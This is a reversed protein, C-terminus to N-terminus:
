SGRGAALAPAPARLGAVLFPVMRQLVEEPSEGGCAGRSMVALKSGCALTHAMAGVLWHARWLLDPLPLEPLARQLAGIFRAAVTSLQEDYISAALEGAEAFLRGMLTPFREGGESARLGLTPGVFAEVIRELEPSGEGAESEARDLLALRQENLPGLRRAFLARVLGDKSGFHYHVSALNVDARATVARLSTAALGSEAFEIEAADLIRERTDQSSM